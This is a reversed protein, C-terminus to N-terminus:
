HAQHAVVQQGRGTLRVDGAHDAHVGHCQRRAFRAGQHVPVVIVPAIGVLAHDEVAGVQGFVDEELLGDAGVVDHHHIILGNDGARHALVVGVAGDDPADLIIGEGIAADRGVVEVPQDRCVDPLAIHRVVRQVGEAADADRVDGVELRQQRVDALVAELVVRGDVQRLAGIRDLFGHALVHAPVDIVM